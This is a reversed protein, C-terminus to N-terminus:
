KRGTMKNYMVATTRYVIHAFKTYPLYIIILWVFLLHFLYIYYAAAGWDLFRAMEVVVGSITLIFISVLFVWDFYTSHSVADKKKIRKYIMSILGITLMLAAVNGAIKVPSTIPMPYTGMIVSLIAFLTVILLMVFGWFVLFHSSVTFKKDKCKSFNRHSLIENIAQFLSRFWGQQKGNAPYNIKMDKWFRRISGIFTGCSLFFLCTFTSNLWAHPFFESYNVYGDPIRLTGAFYIIAVIIFLPVLTVVPIWKPSALIKVLFKPRAYHKYTFKRISSLVDSPKVGRPCYTSCEGCQHCLWVDPNGILKDKMGWGALIMEKRPFPRDEPSLKCVVSCTGCQMCQKLPAGSEKKLESIFQIDPETIKM